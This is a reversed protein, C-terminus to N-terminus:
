FDTWMYVRLPGEHNIDRGPILSMAERSADKSLEDSPVPSNATAVTEATPLAGGSSRPVFYLVNTRHSYIIGSSTKRMRGACSAKRQLKMSQEKTLGVILMVIVIVIVVTVSITVASAVAFLISNADDAASMNRSNSDGPTAPTRHTRLYNSEIPPTLLRTRAEPPKAHARSITLLNVRQISLTTKTTPTVHRSTMPPHIMRTVHTTMTTHHDKEDYIEEHDYWQREEATDFDVVDFAKNVDVFGEDSDYFHPRLRGSNGAPAIMRRDANAHDLSQGRAAPGPPTFRFRGMRQTALPVETPVPPLHPDPSSFDRDTLSILLRGQLNPPTFCRNEEVRIVEVSTTTCWTRFWQVTRDCNWRTSSVYLIALSPFFDPFDSRLTTMHSNQLGLEQLSSLSLLVADSSLIARVVGPSNDLDMKTLNRTDAFVDDDITVDHSPVYALYIKRLGTLGHFCRSNYLFILM